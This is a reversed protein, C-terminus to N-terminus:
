IVYFSSFINYIQFINNNFNIGSVAVNIFINGDIHGMYQALGFFCTGCFFWNIFICISKLRMNPTRFLHTVNYNTNNTKRILRQSEHSELARNVNELPIKNRRAAKM